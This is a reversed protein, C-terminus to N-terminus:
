NFCDITMQVNITMGYQKVKVKKQSWGVTWQQNGFNPWPLTYYKCALSILKRHFNIIIENQIEKEEKIVKSNDNTVNEENSFPFTILTRRASRCNNNYYEEEKDQPWGCRVMYPGPNLKTINLHDWENRVWLIERQMNNVDFDVVAICKVGIEIRVICLKGCSLWEQVFLLIIPSWSFYTAITKHVHIQM